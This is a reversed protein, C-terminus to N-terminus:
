RWTYEQHYETVIEKMMRLMDLTTFEGTHRPNEVVLVETVMRTIAAVIELEEATQEEEPM